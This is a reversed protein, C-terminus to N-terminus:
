DYIPLFIARIFTNSIFELSDFGMVVNTVHPCAILRHNRDICYTGFTKWLIYITHSLRRKSGVLSCASWSHCGCGVAVRAIWSECFLEWVKLGWIFKIIMICARNLELDSQRAIVKCFFYLTSINQWIWKLIRVFLMVLSSGVDM